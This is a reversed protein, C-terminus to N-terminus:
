YTTKGYHKEVLKLDEPTNVTIGDYDTVVVKIPIGNDLARMQELHSEQENKTPIMSAFKHLFKGDFVYLGVHKYINNKSENGSYLRFFDEAFGDESVQVKVTNPDEWNEDSLATSAVTGMKLSEDELFPKLALDIVDPDIFPEDGQINVFIDANSNEAVEAVRETGSKHGSSTIRVPIKLAELTLQVRRSDTAVVVSDLLNTRCVQQYVRAVMPIGNIPALVKGPFRTSEYRAPIIGLIKKKKVM